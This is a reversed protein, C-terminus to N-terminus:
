AQRLEVFQAPTAITVGAHSGLALLDRDGTVIYDVAGAVAAELVRNDDVDRSAAITTAPTVVVSKRRLIEVFMVIRADDWLLRRRIHPRALVRKLEALLPESTIWLIDEEDNTALVRAPYGAGRLVASVIVNTDVVIRV